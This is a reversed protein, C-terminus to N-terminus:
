GTVGDGIKDRHTHTLVLWRGRLLAIASLTGITVAVAIWHGARANMVLFLSMCACLHWIPLATPPPAATVAYRLLRDCAWAMGTGTLWWGVFNLWPVGYYPGTDHWVWYPFIITAVPEIQLDFLVICVGALAARQWSPATPLVLFACLWTATTSLLWAFLIVFPVVGAVRWGLTDTYDYAGFPIDQTAGVYEVVGAVTMIFLIVFLSRMHLRAWLWLAVSLGQLALLIGGFFAGDAPVRDLAVVVVTGPFVCVYVLAVVFAWREPHHRLHSLQHMM